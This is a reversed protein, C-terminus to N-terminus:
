RDKGQEEPLNRVLAPEPESGSAFAALARVREVIEGPPFWGSLPMEHTSDSPAAGLLDVAIGTRTRSLRWVGNVRNCASATEERGLAVVVRFAAISEPPLRLPSGALSGVFELATTAHASALLVFGRQAARLVEAVGAGWLYVPLHPSIENVLLATREPDICPDSLFAFNEFCGRLYVRRTEAPLLDSLATLLTTKGVGSPGAVVALSQRRALAAWVHAASWLDITEDLLLNRLSRPQPTEWRPGWWFFPEDYRAESRM